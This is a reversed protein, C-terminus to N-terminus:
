HLKVPVSKFKYEARDWLRIKDMVDNWLYMFVRGYILSINMSSYSVRQFLAGKVALSSTQRSSCDYSLVSVQRDM